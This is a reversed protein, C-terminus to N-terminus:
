KIYFFSPLDLPIFEVNQYTENALKKIGSQLQRDEVISQSKVTNVFYAIRM